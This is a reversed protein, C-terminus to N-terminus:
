SNAKKLSAAMEAIPQAFQRVIVSLDRNDTVKAAASRIDGVIVKPRSAYYEGWAASGKELRQPDAGCIKQSSFGMKALMVAVQPTATCAVWRYGAENLVVALVAFLSYALGPIDAALNGIEIIQDRDVPTMFASAVSQEIPADLYQELFLAGESAERIGVVAGLEGSVKLRLLSPLFQSLKAGYASAFKQSIGSELESREASHEPVLALSMDSPTQPARLSKRAVPNTANAPSHATVTNM